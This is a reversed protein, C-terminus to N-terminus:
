KKETTSRFKRFQDIQYFSYLVFGMAWIALGALVINNRRIQKSAQSATTNIVAIMSDGAKDIEKQRAEKDKNLAETAEDQHRQVIEKTRRDIDNWTNQITVAQIIAVTAGLFTFLAVIIALTTLVFTFLDVEKLPFYGSVEHGLIIGVVISILTIIAIFALRRM